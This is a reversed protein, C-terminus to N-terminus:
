NVSGSSAQKFKSISSFLILSVLNFHFYVQVCVLYFQSFHFAGSNSTHFLSFFEHFCPNRIALGLSSPIDQIVLRFDQHTRLNGVAIAFIQLFTCLLKVLGRLIRFIMRLSEYCPSHIGLSAKKMLIGFKQAQSLKPLNISATQQSVLSKQVIGCTPLSCDFM